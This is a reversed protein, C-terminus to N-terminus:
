IAQGYIVIIGSTFFFKIIIKDLCRLLYYRAQAEIALAYFNIGYELAERLAQRVDQIGYRGEYKDYDNPKGDSLLIVWKNTTHRSKLLHTAHRLAGGIRTYGSPEAAGIKFKGSQWSEDFDKLM